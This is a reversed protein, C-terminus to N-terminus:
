RGVARLPVPRVTGREPESEGHAANQLMLREIAEDLLSFDFWFKGRPGGIRMSPYKGTLAGTRLECVTLGTHESAANLGGRGSM